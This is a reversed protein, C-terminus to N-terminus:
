YGRLLRYSMGQRFDVRGPRGSGRFLRERIMTPHTVVMLLKVFPEMNNISSRYMGEDPLLPPNRWSNERFFDM